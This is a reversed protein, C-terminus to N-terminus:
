SQGFWLVENSVIWNKLFSFISLPVQLASVKVTDFPHGTIVTAVGALLGALYEKYAFTEGM